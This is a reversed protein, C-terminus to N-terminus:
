HTNYTRSTLFVWYTLASYRLRASFNWHWHVRIFWPPIRDFCIQTSPDSHLTIHARFGVLWVRSFNHSRISISCKIKVLNEERKNICRCFSKSRRIFCSYFGLTIIVISLTSASLAVQHVWVIAANHYNQMMAGWTECKDVFCSVM